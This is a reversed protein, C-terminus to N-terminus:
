YFKCQFVMTLCVCMEQYLTLFCFILVFCFLCFLISLVLSGWSAVYAPLSHSWDAAFQRSDKLWSDIKTVPGKKIFQMCVGFPRLFYTAEWSPEHDQM